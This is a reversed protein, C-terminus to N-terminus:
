TIWLKVGAINMLVVYVVKILVVLIKQSVEQRIDIQANVFKELEMLVLTKNTQMNCVGLVIPQKSFRSWKGCSNDLACKASVACCMKIECVTCVEGIM